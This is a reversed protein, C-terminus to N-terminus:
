ENKWFKITKDGSASILYDSTKLLCVVKDSHDNLTQVCKNENLDWIKITKDFSASAILNDSLQCLARVSKEHEILKNICLQNKKDWIRITKDDSGSIIKGNSLEM